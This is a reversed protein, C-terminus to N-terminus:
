GSRSPTVLSIRMLRDPDRYPLSRLMTADLVTYIATNAGIGVALTLIAIATFGPQKRLSRAAYRVDQLLSEISPLGGTARYSEKTQAVGGFRKLAARRADEPTMGAQVLRDAEMQLHFQLERDLETEMRSRRFLNVLRSLLVRLRTM